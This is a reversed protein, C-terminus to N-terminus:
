AGIGREWGIAAGTPSVQRDARARSASATGAVALGVLGGAGFFEDGFEGLAHAALAILYGEAELEAVFFAADKKIAEPDAGLAFPVLEGYRFNGGFGREGIVAPDDDDIAASPRVANEIHGAPGIPFIFEEIAGDFAIVLDFQGSEDANGFALRFKIEAAADAFRAIREKATEAILGFVLDLAVVLRDQAREVCAVLLFQLCAKGLGGLFEVIKLGKDEIIQFCCKEGGIM